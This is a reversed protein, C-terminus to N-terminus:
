SLMSKSSSWKRPWRPFRVNGSPSLPVHCSAPATWGPTAASATERRRQVALGNSPRASPETTLSLSRNCSSTLSRRTTAASISLSKGDTRAKSKFTRADSAVCCTLDLLDQPRGSARKNRILDRRAIVNATVSELDVRVRNRWATEFRVGDISKLLDVRTPARGIM